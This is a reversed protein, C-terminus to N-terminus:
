IAALTFSSASFHSPLPANDDKGKLITYKARDSRMIRMTKYSVSCCQRTFETILEGNRCHEYIAHANLTHLPTNKRGHVVQYHLIQFIAKIRLNIIKHKNSSSENYDDEEEDIPTTNGEEFTETM